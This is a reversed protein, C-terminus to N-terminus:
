NVGEVPKSKKKKKKKLDAFMADPDEEAEDLFLFNKNHTLTFRALFSINSDVIRVMKSLM